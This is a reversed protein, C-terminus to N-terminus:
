KGHRAVADMAEGVPVLNGLVEGTVKDRFYTFVEWAAEGWEEQHVLWVTRGLSYTDSPGSPFVWWAGIAEIGYYEVTMPHVAMCAEGVSALMEGCKKVVQSPADPIIHRQIEPNNGMNNKVVDLNTNIPSTWPSLNNYNLREHLYSGAAQSYENGTLPDWIYRNWYYPVNRDLWDKFDMLSDELCRTGMPDILTVPNNNAYRYVNYGGLVGLPDRQIFRGTVSDYLRSTMFYLGETENTVGFGGVFTFPHYGGQKNQGLVAGSPSYSYKETVAGSPDTVAVISGLKDTHYFDTRTNKLSAVLRSENYIYCTLDTGSDDAQMLVRGNGHLCLYFDKGDRVVKVRRGFADYGCQLHSGNCRIETIHNEQDYTASFNRDGQIQILNGDADYHFTDNNWSQVQDLSNYQASVLAPGPFERPIIEGSITEGTLNGLTDRTYTLDAIVKQDGSHLIGILRGRRDYQFTSQIGNSRVEQSLRGTRTYAFTIWNNGWQIRSIRNREDYQYSVELGTPYSIERINGNASYSYRFEYKQLFRVRTIRDLLDYQYSTTGTGDSISTVNGAHDYDYRAVPVGDYLKQVLRGTVDYRCELANGRGNRCYWLRGLPTYQYDVSTGDGYTKRTILGEGNYTFGVRNGREDTIAVCNGNQDFSFRMRFGNSRIMEVLNNMRNYVFSTTAGKADTFSVPHSNKNYSIKITGPSPDAIELVAGLSNRTYTVTDGGENTFSKLSCCGYHFQKQVGDATIIKTIRDNHDHEFRTQNGSPATMSTRRFGHPDYSFRTINGLPDCTEILNGFTDYQYSNKRGHSDTCLELQGYNDYTLTLFLGTPGTMQVLRQRDDYGYLFTRGIEDTESIVNGYPDTIFSRSNGSPSIIRSLYGNQSYDFRTINGAKDKLRTKNGDQYTYELANGLPDTIKVTRGSESLYESSNGEPDTIRTHNSGIRTFHTTNGAPDTVAQITRGDKAYTFQTTKRDEAVIMRTIADSTNYVYESRIGQLDTCSTLRNQGDYTFRATRGDALTIATCLGRSDVIVHSTRGVADTISTLTGQPDYSLTIANGNLDAISSLLWRSPSVQHEYRLLLGSKQEVLLWYTEYRLLRNGSAGVEEATIPYPAKPPVADPFKFRCRSGSGRAVSILNNKELQLHSEFSFRWHQGFMGPGSIHHSYTLKFVVVPGRSRYGYLIDDIVLEQTASSVSYNPLGIPHYELPDRWWVASDGERLYGTLM